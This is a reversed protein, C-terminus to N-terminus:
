PMVDTPTVFKNATALPAKKSCMVCMRVPSLRCDREDFFGNARVEYGEVLFASSVIADHEVSFGASAEGASAFRDYFAERGNKAAM